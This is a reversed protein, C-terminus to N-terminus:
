QWLNLDLATKIAAYELDIADDPPLSWFALHNMKSYFIRASRQTDWSAYALPTSDDTPGYMAMLTFAPDVSLVRPQSNAYYTSLQDPVLMLNLVPMESLAQDQEPDFNRQSMSAINPSFQAAVHARGLAALNVFGLNIGPIISFLSEPFSNRDQLDADFRDSRADFDAVVSGYPTCGVFVLGAVFGRLEPHTELLERAVMGGMSRGLVIFRPRAEGGQKHETIIKKMSEVSQEIQTDKDAISNRDVVDLTAGLKAMGAKLEPYSLLELTSLAPPSEYSLQPFVLIHLGRLPQSFPQSRPDLNRRAASAALERDFVAQPNSNLKLANSRRSVEKFLAVTCDYGDDILESHWFNLNQIRALALAPRTSDNQWKCRQQSATTSPVQSDVGLRERLSNEFSQLDLSVDNLFPRQSPAFLPTPLDLAALAASKEGALNKVLESYRPYSTALADSRSDELFSRVSEIAIQCPAGSPSAFSTELYSIMHELSLDEVSQSKGKYTPLAKPHALLLNLYRCDITEHESQVFSAELAGTTLWSSSAATSAASSSEVARAYGTSCLVISAWLVWIYNNKMLVM